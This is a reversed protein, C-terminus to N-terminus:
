KEGVLAFAAGQPDMANFVWEGGPVEMPAMVLKGGAKEVKDKAATISKVRFYYTWFSFPVPAMKRMIAGMTEGGQAIFQYKGHAGMDMPEPLEWGYLSSYFSVAKAPDDAQLENWSCRGLKGM